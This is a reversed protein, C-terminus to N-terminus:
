SYLRALEPGIINREWMTNLILGSLSCNPEKLTTPGPVCFKMSDDHEGSTSVFLSLCDICFSKLLCASSSASLSDHSERISELGKCFGLQLGALTNWPLDRLRKDIRRLERCKNLVNLNTEAVKLCLIKLIEKHRM